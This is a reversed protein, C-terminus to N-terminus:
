RDMKNDEKMKEKPKIYKEKKTTAIWNVTKGEKKEGTISITALQEEVRECQLTVELARSM